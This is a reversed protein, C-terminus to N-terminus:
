QDKSAAAFHASNAHTHEDRDRKHEIVEHAEGWHHAAWYKLIKAPTYIVRSYPLDIIMEGNLKSVKLVPWCGYATNWEFHVVFLKALRVQIM